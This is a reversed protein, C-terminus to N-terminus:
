EFMEKWRVNDEKIFKEAFDFAEEETKFEFIHQDTENSLPIKTEYYFQYMGNTKKTILRNEKIKDRLSSLGEELKKIMAVKATESLFSNSKVKEIKAKIESETM